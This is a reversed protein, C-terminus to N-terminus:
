ATLYPNGMQELTAWRNRERAMCCGKVRQTVDTLDCLIVKNETRRDSPQIIQKSYRNVNAM